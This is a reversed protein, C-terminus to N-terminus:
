KKKMLTPCKQISHSIKKCYKCSHETLFIKLLKKYQEDTYEHYSVDGTTYTRGYISLQWHKHPYRAELGYLKYIIYRLQEWSLEELDKLKMESDFDFKFKTIEEVLDISRLEKMKREICIKEQKLIEEEKTIKKLRAELKEM